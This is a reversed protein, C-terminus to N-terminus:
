ERRQRHQSKEPRRKDASRYVNEITVGGSERGRAARRLDDRQQRQCEDEDGPQDDGDRRRQARGAAQALQERYDGSVRQAEGEDAHDRRHQTDPRDARQEVKLADSGEIERLRPQRDARQDAREGDYNRGRARFQAQLDQSGGGGHGHDRAREAQYRGDGHQDADGDDRGALRAAELSGAPLERGSTLLVGAKARRWLRGGFRRGGRVIASRVRAATLIPM